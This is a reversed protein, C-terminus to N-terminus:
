AAKATRLHQIHPLDKDGAAEQIMHLATANLQADVVEIRTLNYPFVPTYGNEIVRWLENSSSCVYSRM